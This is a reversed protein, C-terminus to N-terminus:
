LEAILAIGLKYLIVAAIVFAIFSLIVRLPETM